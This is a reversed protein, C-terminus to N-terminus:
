SHWQRLTLCPPPPTRRRTAARALRCTELRISCGNGLVHNMARMPEAITRPLGRAAERPAVLCTSVVAVGHWLRRLACFRASGNLGIPFTDIEARRCVAARPPSRSSSSRRGSPLISVPIGIADRRAPGARTATFGGRFRPFFRGFRGQQVLSGQHSRPTEPRRQGRRALGVM